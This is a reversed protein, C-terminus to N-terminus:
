LSHNDPDHHLRFPFASSSSSNLRYSHTSLLDPDEAQELQLRYDLPLSDALEYSYFHKRFRARHDNVDDITLKLQIFKMEDRQVFLQCHIFCVREYPCMEERDITLARLVFPQREDLYIKPCPRVFRVLSGRSANLSPIHSRLDVIVTGNPQEEKLSLEIALEEFSRIACPCVLLLAFFLM